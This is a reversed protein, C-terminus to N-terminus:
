QHWNGGAAGWRSSVWGCLGSQNGFYRRHNIWGSDDADYQYKITNDGKQLAVTVAQMSWSAWSATTAFQAQTVDVGNVYVSMTWNYERAAAYRSSVTYRGATPVNVTFAVASGVQTINEAYSVGNNSGVNSLTRQVLPYGGEAEYKTQAQATAPAAFCLLYTILSSVFLLRVTM